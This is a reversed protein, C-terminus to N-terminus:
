AGVERHGRHNLVTGSGSGDKDGGDDRMITILLSVKEEELSQLERTKQFHKCYWTMHKPTQLAGDTKWFKM